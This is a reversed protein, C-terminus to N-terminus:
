FSTITVEGDFSQSSPEFSAEATLAFSSGAGGGAGLCCGGGGGGGYYGGGGGGGARNGPGGRGGRGLAGPEGDGNCGIGGAGGGIQTGGQGGSACSCESGSCAGPGGATGSGDGGVGDACCEAGGGGAAVVVRNSLACGGRRVDSAGGGGGAPGNFDVNDVGGPGGGNWGGAGGTNPLVFDGGAGGVFVYLVEGPEVDLVAQVRAGRGGRLGDDEDSAARGGGAAGRAEIAISTVGVPVRWAQPAGTFPFVSTTPGTAAEPAAPCEDVLPVAADASSAPVACSDACGGGDVPTEVDGELGVPRLGCATGDDTVRFGPACVCGAGDEDYACRANQPCTSDAFSVQDACNRLADGVCFPVAHQHGECERALPLCRGQEDGPATVCREGDECLLDSQWAGRRCVLPRKGDHGSCARSGDSSCPTGVHAIGPEGVAADEVAGEAPSVLTRHGGADGDTEDFYSAQLETRCAAMLLVAAGM